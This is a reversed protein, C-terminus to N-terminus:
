RVTPEGAFLLEEAVIFDLRQDTKESPLIGGHRQFDFALGIAVISKKQEKLNAITRDFFGGGMGLRTLHDDFALIPLIVFDPIIKQGFAPEFIKPYFQNAVLNQSSEHLIFELPANKQIIKPYCFKLQNKSFHAALLDTQVENFAPLYLTFVGQSNKALLKPLLNQLFNQNIKQSKQTLEEKNLSARRTKFIQRLQNKEDTKKSM